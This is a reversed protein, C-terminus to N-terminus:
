IREVTGGSMRAIDEIRKQMTIMFKIKLNKLLNGLAKCKMEETFKHASILSFYCGGAGHDSETDVDCHQTLFPL